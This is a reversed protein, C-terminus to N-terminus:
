AVGTRFYRKLQEEIDGESLNDLAALLRGLRDMGSVESNTFDGTAKLLSTLRMINAATYTRMASVARYRTKQMSPQMAAQAAPEAFYCRGEANKFWNAQVTPNTAHAVQAEADKAKSLFDALSGATDAM